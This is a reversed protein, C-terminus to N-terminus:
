GTVLRSGFKRKTGTKHSKVKRWLKGVIQWGTEQFIILDGITLLNVLVSDEAGYTM